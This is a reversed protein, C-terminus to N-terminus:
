LIREQEKDKEKDKGKTREWFHLNFFYYKVLFTLHVTMCGKRLFSSLFHVALHEM